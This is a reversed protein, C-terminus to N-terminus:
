IIIQALGTELYYPSINIYYGHMCVYYQTSSKRKIACRAPSAAAPVSPLNTELYAAHLYAYIYM